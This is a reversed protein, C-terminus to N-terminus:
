RAAATRRQRALTLPTVTAITPESTMLAELKDAADRSSGPHLYRATVEIQAHGLLKQLTRLDVGARLASTAFTHRFAHAGLHPVGARKCLWFVTDALTPYTRPGNTRVAPVVWEISGAQARLEALTAATRSTLPLRRTKGSKPSVLEPPKGRPCWLTARVTVERAEFAVDPWRLACVEGARLGLDVMLLVAARERLDRCAALIATVQEPSYCRIEDDDAEVKIPKIVPVRLNLEPRVKAAARLCTLLTDIVQNVRRPGVSVLRGRLRRVELESSCAQLDKDGLEPELWRRFVNGKAVITAPKRREAECDAIYDAWWERLTPVRQAEAVRRKKEIDARGKRTGPPRGKAMIAKAQDWGWREAGSRSTINAPCTLRFRDVVEEGFPVVHLDATWIKQGNNYSRARVTVKVAFEEGSLAEM